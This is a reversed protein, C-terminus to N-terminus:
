LKLSDKFQQSTNWVHCSSTFYSQLNRHLKIVDGVKRDSLPSRKLFGRCVSISQHLGHRRRQSLHHRLDERLFERAGDRLQIQATSCHCFIFVHRFKDRAAADETTLGPERSTFVLFRPSERLLSHNYLRVQPLTSILAHPDIIRTFWPDILSSWCFWTRGAATQFFWLAM